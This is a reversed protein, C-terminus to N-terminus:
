PSRPELTNGRPPRYEVWDFYFRPVLTCFRGSVPDCAKVTWSYCPWVMTFSPFWVHEDHTAWAEYIVLGNPCRGVLSYLGPVPGLREISADALDLEFVGESDRALLHAADHGPAIEAARCFMVTSDDDFRHVAVSPLAGRKFFETDAVLYALAKGDSLWVLRSYGHVPGAVFTREHTAVDIVELVRARFLALRGGSPSLSVQPSFFNQDHDEILKEQSGDRGLLFVENGLFGTRVAAYDGNEDPGSITFPSFPLDLQTEHGEPLSIQKGSRLLLTGEVDAALEPSVHGPTWRMQEPTPPTFFLFCGPCLVSLVLALLTGTCAAGIKGCCSSTVIQNPSSIM